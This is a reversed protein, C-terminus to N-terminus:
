FIDSGVVVFSRNKLSCWDSVLCLKKIRSRQPLFLEEVCSEENNVNLVM